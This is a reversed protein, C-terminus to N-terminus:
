RIITMTKSSTGDPTEVRIFYIGSPLEQNNLNLTYNGAPKTENLLNNILRGTADYLSISVKGPQKTVYSLRVLGNSPNPALHLSLGDIVQAQDEAIG